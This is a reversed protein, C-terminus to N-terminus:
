QKKEKNFTENYYYESNRNYFKSPRESQQDSRGDRYANIIQKKEMELKCYALDICNDVAKFSSQYLLTKKLEEIEKILEEVATKM